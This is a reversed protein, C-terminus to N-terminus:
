AFATGEKELNEDQKKLRIWEESIRSDLHDIIVITEGEIVLKVVDQHKKAEPFQEDDKPHDERSRDIHTRSTLREKHLSDIIGCTHIHPSNDRHM